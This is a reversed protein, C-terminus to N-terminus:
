KKEVVKFKRETSNFPGEVVADERDLLELKITHEGVAPPEPLIFREWTSWTGVKKGDLTAVVHYGNTSLTCGTVYYDVLFRAHDPTGVTYEGKPRSYTLTPKTTPDVAALDLAGGRSKVHFRVWTFAGENKRSEHHLAGKDDRPGASPFARLVHTGEALKELKVGSGLGDAYIAKYPENDLILHVHPGGTKADPGVEYQRLDLKVVVEDTSLVQDMKPAVLFLQPGTSGAVGPKSGADCAVAAAAIPLLALLRPLRM